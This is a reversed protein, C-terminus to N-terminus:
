PNGPEETQEGQQQQTEGQQTEDGPTEVVEAQTAPLVSAFFASDDDASGFDQVFEWTKTDKLAVFKGEITEPQWEINEEKTKYSDDPIGFKGKYLKVCRKSGDAMTGEFMIAVYKSTDNSKRTITKNTNDYTGGLLDAQVDLPLEALELSVTIDGMASDTDYPGNDAYLTNTNSEVTRVVTRLGPVATPSSYTAASDAQDEVTQKAYYFKNVGVKVKSM